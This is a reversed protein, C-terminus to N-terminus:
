GSWRPVRERLLMVRSRVRVVSTRAGEIRDGEVRVRVLSSGIGETGDNGGELQTESYPSRLIQKNKSRISFSLVNHTM